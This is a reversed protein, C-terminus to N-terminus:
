LGYVFTWKKDAYRKDDVREDEIEEVTMEAVKIAKYRNAARLEFHYAAYGVFSAAM